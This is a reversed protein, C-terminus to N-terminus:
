LFLNISAAAQLSTFRGVGLYARAGLQLKPLVQWHAGASGVLNFGNNELSTDFSSNPTISRLKPSTLGFELGANYFFSAQKYSAYAGLLYSEVIGRYEVYDSKVVVDSPLYRFSAYLNVKDQWVSKVKYAAQIDSTFAANWSGKNAKLQVLSFSTAAFFLDGYDKAPKKEEEKQDKKGERKRRTKNIKRM